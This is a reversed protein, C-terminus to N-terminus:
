FYIINFESHPLYNKKSHTAWDIRIVKPAFEFCHSCSFRLSLPSPLFLDFPSSWCLHVRHNTEQPETGFFRGGNIHGCLDPRNWGKVERLRDSLGTSHKKKIERTVLVECPDGCLYTDRALKVFWNSLNSLSSSLLWAVFSVCIV